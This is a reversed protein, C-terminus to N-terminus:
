VADEGGRPSHCEEGDRPPVRAGETVPNQATASACGGLLFLSAPLVSEM